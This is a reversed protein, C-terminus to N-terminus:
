NNKSIKLNKAKESKSESDFEVKKKYWEDKVELLKERKLNNSEKQADAIIQKAKEEASLLSKKGSKSNFMWGFYFFLCDSSIVMPIMIILGSEM